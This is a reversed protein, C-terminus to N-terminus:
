TSQYHILYQQLTIEFMKLIHLYIINILILLYKPGIPDGQHAIESKAAIVGNSSLASSASVVNFLITNVIVCSM